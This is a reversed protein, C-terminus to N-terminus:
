SPEPESAADSKRARPDTRRRRGGKGGTLASDVAQLFDRKLGDSPRTVTESKAIIVVDAPPLDLTPLLQEALARLRRRARNRAVANGVRKSATLGYRLRPIAPDATEAGDHRRVQVMVGARRGVCGRERAALFQRRM